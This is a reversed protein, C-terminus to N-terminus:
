QFMDIEEERTKTDDPSVEAVNPSDTEINGDNGDGISSVTVNNRTDKKVDGSKFWNFIILTVTVDDESGKAKAADVVAEAVKKPPHHIVTM